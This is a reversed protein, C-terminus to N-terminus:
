ALEIAVIRVERVAEDIWFTVVYGYDSHVWHSRGDAEAVRWVPGLVEMRAIQEFILRLHRRNAARQALVFEVAPRDLVYTYSLPM